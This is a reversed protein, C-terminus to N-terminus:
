TSPQALSYTCVFPHSASGEAADWVATSCHRVFCICYPVNTAKCCHEFHRIDASVQSSGRHQPEFLSLGNSVARHRSCGQAPRLICINCSCPLKFHATAVGAIPSCSASHVPQDTTWYSFQATLPLQRPAVNRWEEKQALKESSPVFKTTRRGATTQANSNRWDRAFGHLSRQGAKGETSSRQVSCATPFPKEAFM